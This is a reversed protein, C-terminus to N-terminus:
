SQLDLTNVVRGAPWSLNKSQYDMEAEFFEPNKAFTVKWVQHIMMNNM